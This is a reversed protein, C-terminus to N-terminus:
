LKLFTRAPADGPEAALGGHQNEATRLSARGRAGFKLIMRGTDMPDGTRSALLEEVRFGLLDLLDNFEEPGSAETMNRLIRQAEIDSRVLETRCIRQLTDSLPQLVAFWEQATASRFQALGYATRPAATGSADSQAEADSVDQSSM